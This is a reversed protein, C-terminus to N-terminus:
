APPDAHYLHRAVSAFAAGALTAYKRSGTNWAGGGTQFARGVEAGRYLVVAIPVGGQAEAPLIEIGRRAVTGKATRVVIGTGDGLAERLRAALISPSM